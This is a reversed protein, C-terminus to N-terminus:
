RGFSRTTTVPSRSPAPGDYRPAAGTYGLMASLEGQDLGARLRYERIIPGYASKAKPSVKRVM